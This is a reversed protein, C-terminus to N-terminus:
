SRVRIPPTQVNRIQVARVKSAVPVGMQTAPNFQGFMIINALDITLEGQVVTWYTVRGSADVILDVVNSADPPALDARIIKPAYESDPGGGTFTGNPAVTVVEGDPATFFAQDAFAHRFTLSPVLLGFMMISSVLGSAFPFALPRALNDFLLQVRGELARWRAAVSMRALRREREHSAVVRLRATLEAPVPRRRIGRLANRVAQQSEMYASCERCSGIHALVNEREAVPLDRDLVSSVREQVNECSM